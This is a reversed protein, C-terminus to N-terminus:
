FPPAEICPLVVLISGPFLGFGGAINAYDPHDTRISFEDNFGGTISHYNFLPEGSQTVRVTTRVFRVAVSHKYVIRDM